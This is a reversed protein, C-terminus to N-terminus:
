VDNRAFVYLLELEVFEPVPEVEYPKQPTEPTHARQLNMRRNQRKENVAIKETLSHSYRASANKENM